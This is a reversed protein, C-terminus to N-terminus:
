GDREMVGGWQQALPSQPSSPSRLSVTDLLAQFGARIPKLYTSAFGM